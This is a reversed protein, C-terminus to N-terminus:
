AEEIRCRLPFKQAKALRHVAEVKTSAIDWTFVGVVGAGLRHVDMMIKTATPIDKHFVNVLVEVVFEMTTFDDNLLLVKYMPPEKPQQRDRELIDTGHREDRRPDSM